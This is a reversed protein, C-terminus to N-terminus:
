PNASQGVDEWEALMMAHDVDLYRRSYLFRTGISTTIQDMDEYGHLETMKDTCCTIEDESLEFPAQQFVTIPVPRAYTAAHERTISAMLDLVDEKKLILLRAYAQTMALTSYYYRCETRDSIVQIDEHSRIIEHLIDMAESELIQGDSEAQSMMVGALIDQESLLLGKRSSERISDLIANRYESIM